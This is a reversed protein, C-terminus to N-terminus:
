EGGVGESGDNTHLAARAVQGEDDLVPQRVWEKIRKSWRQIYNEEDGYFELAERLRDNEELLSDKKAVEKRLWRITADAKLGEEILMSESERLRAERFEPDEMKEDLWTKESM